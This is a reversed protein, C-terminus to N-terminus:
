RGLNAIVDNIIGSNIAIMLIDNAAQVYRYGTPAPGLRRYLDPPLDRYSVGRPIPQGVAWKKAQGPPMCGNRKKALGPPCHGRREQEVYYDRIVNRHQDNFLFQRGLDYVNPAPYGYPTQQEMRYRDQDQDYGDDQREQHKEKHHKNHKGEGKDPKEAWCPATTLSVTLSLLLINKSLTM